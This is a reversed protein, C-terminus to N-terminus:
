EGGIKLYFGKKWAFTNNDPNYDANERVFAAAEEDLAKKCAWCRLYGAFTEVTANRPLGRRTSIVYRKGNLSLVGLENRRIRDDPQRTM